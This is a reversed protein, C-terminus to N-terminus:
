VDSEILFIHTGPVGGVMNYCSSVREFGETITNNTLSLIVTVPRRIYFKLRM